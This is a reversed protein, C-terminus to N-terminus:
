NVGISKGSVSILHRCDNTFKLGTVLESHGFMTAMCDGSHFDYISITKDTCSTALYVGSRDLVVKILTGDDGASGKFTKIHKGNGITYVRVNRDQCATLIHKHNYQFIITLIDSSFWSCCELRGFASIPMPFNETFFIEDFHSYSSHLCLKVIKKTILFFRVDTEMDYLTTKGVIHNGRTFELGGKHDSTIDRFIISKDAGCSAIQVSNEVGPRPPMKLFRIATISSSHDDLTHVFSYERCADFVHILRDRSASALLSYLSVILTYLAIKPAFIWVKLLKWTKCIKQSFVRWFSVKYSQIHLCLKM